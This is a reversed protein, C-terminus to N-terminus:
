ANWSKLEKPIMRLLTLTAYGLLGAGTMVHLSTLHPEKLTLVTMIGLCIQLVLLIDMVTVSRVLNKSPSGKRLLLVNIVGLVILICVAGLRHLLHTAVQWKQVPELDLDFRAHNISNLMHNDLTPWWLGGMTPFDPVALGSHTHRMVAGLILQIYILTVLWLQCTILNNKIGTNVPREEREKSYAYAILITIIFFTQALVGHAVSVATPLLFLVTIGGLVGQCIVLILAAFGLRKVWRRKEKLGIWIAQILICFGVVSAVMRHGHEYFVGGVMPPFLSGYSLPWDPVSLGSGTSTVMGGVFILFLTAFCTIKSFCRLGTM